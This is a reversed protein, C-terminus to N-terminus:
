NPVRARSWNRNRRWTPSGYRSILRALKHTSVRNSCKPLRCIRIESDQCVHCVFIVTSFSNLTRHSIFTVSLVRTLTHVESHQAKTDTLATVNHKETLASCNCQTKTDPCQETNHKQTHTHASCNITMKHTHTHTHTHAIIIHKQTQISCNPWRETMWQLWM